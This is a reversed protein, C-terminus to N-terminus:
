RILQWYLAILKDGFYVAFAMGLSLFPAFPVTEKMAGAFRKKPVLAAFAFITGCVCATFLALVSLRWGLLLGSAATLKIDGWGMGGRTILRAAFLPVSVAFFGALREPWADSHSYILAFIGIVLICLIFIDPIIRNEFDIFSIIILVSLFAAYLFFDASFRYEAFLLAYLAGTGLEVAPYRPSIRCGCSRCRGRLWLFSVVPVLDRAKIKAGCEPCHSRGTVISEGAPIRYICVNLFSGIVLGYVFVVAAFVAEM